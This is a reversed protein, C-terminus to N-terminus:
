ARLRKRDEKYEGKRHAKARAIGAAELLEENGSLNGVAQLKKAIYKDSYGEKEAHKVLGKATYKETAGKGWPHSTSAQEAIGLAYKPEEYKNAM